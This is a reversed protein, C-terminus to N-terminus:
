VQARFSGGPMPRRRLLAGWRGTQPRLHMRLHHIWGHHGSRRHLARTRLTRDRHPPDRAQERHVRGSEARRDSVRDPLGQRAPLAFWAQRVRAACCLSFVLPRPNLFFSLHGILSLARSCMVGCRGDAICVCACNHTQRVYHFRHYDQPALRAICLAGGNFKSAMTGDKDWDGFLNGLTFNRGKIWLRTAEDISPFVMMRCDAPSVALAEDGEGACSRVGPKLRRSFFENFTKYESLPLEVEDLNLQHIKVFNPIDRASKPNDMKAGAKRTLARLTGKIRSSAMKGAWTRNLVVLASKIYAPVNERVVMASERDQVLIQTGENDVTPDADPADNVNSGTLCGKMLLSDLAQPGYTIVAFLRRLAAHKQFAPTRFLTALGKPGLADKKDVDAQAFSQEVDEASLNKIGLAALMHTVEVLDMTKNGDSDYTDILHTYFEQEVQERPKITLQVLVEGRCRTASRPRASVASPVALAAAAATTKSSAQAAMAGMESATSPSPSSSAAAAGAVSDAAAPAPPAPSHVHFDRMLVGLQADTEDHERALPLALDYLKNQELTGPRLYANGILRSAGITEYDFVSIKLVAKDSDSKTTWL